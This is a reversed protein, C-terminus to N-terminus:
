VLLEFGHSLCPVISSLRTQSKHVPSHLLTPSGFPLFLFISAAVCAVDQSAPPISYSIRISRSSFYRDQRGSISCVKSNLHYGTPVPRSQFKWGGSYPLMAEFLPTRPSQRSYTRRLISCTSVSLKFAISSYYLREGFNAESNYSTYQM